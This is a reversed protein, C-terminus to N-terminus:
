QLGKEKKFSELNFPRYSIGAAQRMSDMTVQRAVKKQQITTADNGPIPFYTAIEKDMEDVGIAAGSEKRLNARVWNEQAQRYQQQEPTMSKTRAYQGVFPIGGMFDTFATAYPESVKKADGMKVKGSEMQQTAIKNELKDIMQESAEMRQVFGAANREGETPKGALLKREARDAASEKRAIFQDEMRALADIRKLATEEDIVGTTFGRELQQAITRVQPSPSQLYPTFPSVGQIDSGPILGAKKATIQTDAISKALVPDQLAIQQYVDKNIQRSVNGQADTTETYLSPLLKQLDMKRKVDAFKAANLQNQVQQDMVGQYAQQGAMLGSAVPQLLGQPRNSPGSAAIIGLGTNLLGARQAAQRMKEEDVGLLGMMQNDQPPFLYDLLAM